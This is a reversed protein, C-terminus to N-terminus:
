LSLIDDSRSWRPRDVALANLPLSPMFHPGNPSSIIAVIARANRSFLVCTHIRHRGLISSLTMKCQAWQRRHRGPGIIGLIGHGLRGWAPIHDHIPIDWWLCSGKAICYRMPAYKMVM